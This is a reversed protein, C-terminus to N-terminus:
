VRLLSGLVGSRTGPVSFFAGISRDAPKTRFEMWTAAQVIRGEHIFVARDSLFEAEELYHTVYLVTLGLDRHLDRVLQALDKRQHPDLATLPEDLLLLKHGPALARCLGVRQREGGSIQYPLKKDIGVIGLREQMDGIARDRGARSFGRGAFGSRIHAIVTRNEPIPYDQSMFGVARRSPAIWRQLPSLTRGGVSIRGKTPRELGGILKLLLSKGAGSLGLVAWCVGDPVTLTYDHVAWGTQFRKKIGALVVEPM